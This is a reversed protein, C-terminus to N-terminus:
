TTIMVMSDMIFISMKQRRFEKWIGDFCARAYGFLKNWIELMISWIGVIIEDYKWGNDDLKM